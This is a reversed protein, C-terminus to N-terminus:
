KLTYVLHYCELKGDETRGGCTDGKLYYIYDIKEDKLLHTEADGANSGTKVELGYNKNEAM